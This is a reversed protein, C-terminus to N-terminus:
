VDYSAVSVTELANSLPGGSPAQEADAPAIRTVNKVATLVM